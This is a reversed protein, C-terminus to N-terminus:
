LLSAKFRAFVIREYPGAAGCEYPCGLTDNKLPALCFYAAPGEHLVHGDPRGPAGMM